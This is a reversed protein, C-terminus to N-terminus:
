SGVAVTRHLILSRLAVYLLGGGLVHWLFHTGCPVYGCVVWDISRFTLGVCFLGAGIGLLYREPQQTTYHYVAACLLVLLTPAYLISGNMYPPLWMMLLSVVFYGCAVVTAIAASRGASSRLYMWLFCLQFLFIPVLDLLKAWPSAFMHWLGSGVGIGAALATLLNLDWARVKCRGALNWAAVAAWIYALNTLTNLPEAFLGVGQRECYTHIM